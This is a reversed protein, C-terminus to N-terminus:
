VMGSFGLFALAMLGTSVFAIPAGKLPGPVLVYYQLKERVGSMLLMAITFGVGAFFGQVIAEIFTLPEPADTTNLVAVGMVACNTTILALYIGLAEYLSPSVKRLVM